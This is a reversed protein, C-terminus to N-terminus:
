SSLEVRDLPVTIYRNREGVPTPMLLTITPTFGGGRRFGDHTEKVFAGDVRKGDIVLSVTQGILSFATGSDV